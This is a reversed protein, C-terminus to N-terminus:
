FISAQMGQPWSLEPRLLISTLNITVSGFQLRTLGLLLWLCLSGDAESSAYQYFCSDCLVKQCEGSSTLLISIVLLTDRLIPPLICRVWQLWTNYVLGAILTILLNCHDRHRSLQPTVHFNFLLGSYYPSICRFECFPPSLDQTVPWALHNFFYWQTELTCNGILTWCYSYRSRM